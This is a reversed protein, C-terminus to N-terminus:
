PVGPRQADWEFEQMAGMSLGVVAYRAQIDLAETLLRHQSEVMDAISIQPFQGEPQSKSNTPSISVGNALADVIVIYYKSPNLLEPSALYAHEASIGTYWTPVLLVNSKAANITGYTRYGIDCPAITLTCEGPTAFQQPAQTPTNGLSLNSWLIVSLLIVGFLVRSISESM